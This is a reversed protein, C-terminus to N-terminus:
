DKRSAKGRKPKVTGEKRKIEQDLAGIVFDKVTTGEIAAHIKLKRFLDEPFNRISLVSM